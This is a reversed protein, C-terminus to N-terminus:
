ILRHSSELKFHLVKVLSRRLGVLHLSTTLFPESRPVIRFAIFECGTSPVAVATLQDVPSRGVVPAPWSCVVIPRRSEVAARSGPHELERRIERIWAVQERVLPLRELGSLGPDTADEAPCHLHYTLRSM